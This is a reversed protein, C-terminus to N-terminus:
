DLSIKRALVLNIFKYIYIINMIMLYLFINSSIIKRIFNMKM